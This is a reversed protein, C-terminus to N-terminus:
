DRVQPYLVEGPLHLEVRFGHGPATDLQMRGGLMDIREHIASLGLGPTGQRPLVKEVEGGIGDDEVGVRIGERTRSIRVVARSAGGNKLANLLLERIAQFLFTEIDRDPPPSTPTETEVQVDMLQDRRYEEALWELAAALGYDALIPPCLGHSLDRSREIATDLLERLRHAREEVRAPTAGILGATQLKATVLVQQLQDHIFRAIRRRESNEAHTLQLTLTQLQQTRREAERARQELERNLQELHAEHDPSKGGSEPTPSGPDRETDGDTDDNWTM